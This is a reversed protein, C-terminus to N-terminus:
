LSEILGIAALILAYPAIIEFTEFTLPVMPIHFLPFGGEISALDGVRPVPLDAFIVILAVIVIGALPAPVAQTLKPLGWIIAMTLAVLALMLVLPLGSMWVKTDDPGPVQFQTLQALFIVIALGNVFGLMVPHPVLRIFKGLKFVGAMIQLIGMLVVTAFLYEVGHVAVLSVMVVALAGTAGSIMGPRGGILATVLGVLFAAYLGVLPHVGAVFAFAVAEPVLALAVTLGALLEIRIRGLTFTETFQTLSIGGTM